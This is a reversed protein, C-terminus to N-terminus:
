EEATLMRAGAAHKEGELLVGARTPDQKLRIFAGPAIIM